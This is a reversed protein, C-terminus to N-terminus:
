TLCIKNYFWYFVIIVNKLLYPTGLLTELYPREPARQTTRLPNRQSREPTARSLEGTADRSPCKLLMRRLSRPPEEPAEITEQARRTEEASGRTRKPPRASRLRPLGAECPFLSMSNKARAAHLRAFRPEACRISCHYTKKM